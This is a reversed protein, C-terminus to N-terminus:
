GRGVGQLGRSQLGGPEETQPTRWALIGSHRAKAKELAGERGWSRVWTEQMAPLNKEERFETEASAPPPHVSERSQHQDCLSVRGLTSVATLPTAWTLQLSGREAECPPNGDAASFGEYLAM